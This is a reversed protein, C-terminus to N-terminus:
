EAVAKSIARQWDRIFFLSDKLPDYGSRKKIPAGDKGFLYTQPVGVINLRESLKGEPDHLVPFTYGKLRPHNAVKELSEEGIHVSYIKVIPQNAFSQHMLEIEEFMQFCKGCDFTWFDFMVVKGELEESSLISGDLRQLEFAVPDQSEDFYHDAEKYSIFAGLFFGSTCLVLGLIMIMLFVKATRLPKAIRFGILLATWATLTLIPFVQPFLLPNVLVGRLDVLLQPLLLLIM